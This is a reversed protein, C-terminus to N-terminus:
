LKWPIETAGKVLDILSSSNLVAIYAAGKVVDLLVKLWM